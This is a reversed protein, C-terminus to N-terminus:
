PAPSALLDSEPVVYVPGTHVVIDDFRADEPASDAGVLLTAKDYPGVPIDFLTAVPIGDATVVAHDGGEAPSSACEIALTVHRADVEVPLDGRDVLQLRGDIMRGVLWGADGDTGAWLWRPVGLSSGCAVGAMGDGSTDIWAEVRLVDAPAELEHDDWVTSDDAIVSMELRGDAYATVGTDDSIEEWSSPASLDDRYVETTAGLLGPTPAADQAVAGSTLLASMAVAIALGAAARGRDAM